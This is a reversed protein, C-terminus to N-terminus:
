LMKKQIEASQQRLGALRDNYGYDQGVQHLIDANAPPQVDLMASYLQETNM